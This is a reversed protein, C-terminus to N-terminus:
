WMIGHISLPIKRKFKEVLGQELKWQGGDTGCIQSVESVEFENM